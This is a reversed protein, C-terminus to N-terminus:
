CNLKCHTYRALVKWFCEAERTEAEPQVAAQGATQRLFGFEGAVQRQRKGAFREDYTSAVVRRDLGCGRAGM